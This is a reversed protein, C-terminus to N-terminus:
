AAGGVNVELQAGSPSGILFAQFHEAAGPEAQAVVARGAAVIAAGRRAIAYVVVEHLSAHSHNVVTGEAKGESVHAGEIAVDPAPEGDREGEGVEASVGAPTGSAQVQDDVWESTAHAPLLGLAHLSPALGPQANTYLSAGHAGRVTIEIPVDRLAIGSGNHVTVAM